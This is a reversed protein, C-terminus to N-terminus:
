FNNYFLEAKVYLKPLLAITDDLFLGLAVVSDRSSPERVVESGAAGVNMDM